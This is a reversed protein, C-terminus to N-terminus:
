LGKIVDVKEAMGEVKSFADPKYNKKYFLDAYQRFEAKDMDLKEAATEVISKQLDAQSEKELQSDSWEQAYKKLEKTNIANETM